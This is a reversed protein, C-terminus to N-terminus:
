LALATSTGLAGAGLIWYATTDAPSLVWNALWRGEDTSWELHISELVSKQETTNGGGFPRHRVTVVDGLEAQLLRVWLATIGFHPDLAIGAIRPPPDKYRRVLYSAIQSAEADTPVLVDESLLRLFHNDVSTSDSATQATGGTRTVRAANWLHQDDYEIVVAAYPLEGGAEDDGFTALSGQSGALLRRDRNHFTIGGQKSAFLLGLESREVDQLHALANTESLTVAQVTAQGQDLARDGVPGLITTTSLVSYTPDGLIWATGTRWSVASLVEAVRQDSREQSFATNLESLGLVRLGDDAAIATYQQGDGDRFPTWSRIYGHYLEYTAGGYSARQRIRRMRKLNGYYPGSTYSPDFRRDDDRLVASYSGSSVADLEFQRGRTFAWGTVYASVDVWVPTETPKTTLAIETIPRAVEAM